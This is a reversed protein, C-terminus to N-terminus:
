LHEVEEYLVSEDLPNCDAVTLGPELAHKRIAMVMVVEDALFTAPEDREVVGPKLPRDGVQGLPEADADVTM